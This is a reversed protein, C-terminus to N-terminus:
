NLELRISVAFLITENYIVRIVIIGGAIAILRKRYQIKLISKTAELGSVFIFLGSM